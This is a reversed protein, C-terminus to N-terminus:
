KRKAKIRMYVNRGDFDFEEDISIVEFREELELYYKARQPTWISAHPMDPTNVVETTTIIDQNEWNAPLRPPETIPIDRLIKEENLIRNALTIYNPVIIDLEADKNMINAVQYLFYLLDFKGIHEFFRYSAVYNFTGPYEDLFHLAEGRFYYNVCEIDDDNNFEQQYKYIGSISSSNLFNLDVNVIFGTPFDYPVLGKNGSGLNLISM